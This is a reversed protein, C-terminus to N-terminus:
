KNGIRKWGKVLEYRQFKLKLQNKKEKKGEKRKKSRKKKTDCTFIINNDQNRTNTMIQAGKENLIANTLPCPSGWTRRNEDDSTFCVVFVIVLYVFPIVLVFCFSVFCFFFFLFCSCFCFLVSFQSHMNLTM